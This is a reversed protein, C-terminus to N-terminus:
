LSKALYLKNKIPLHGHWRELIPVMKCPEDRVKWSSDHTAKSDTTRSTQRAQWSHSHTIPSWNLIPTVIIRNISPALM